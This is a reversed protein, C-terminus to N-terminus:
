FLPVARSWALVGKTLLIRRSHNVQYFIFAILFIASSRAGHALMLFIAGGAGLGTATLLSGVILGIHGVSSYAIIIKLDTLRLCLVRILFTGM